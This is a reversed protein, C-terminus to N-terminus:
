INGKKNVRREYIVDQSLKGEKGEELGEGWREKEGSRGRRCV